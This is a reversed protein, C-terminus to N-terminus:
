EFTMSMEKEGGFEDDDDSWVNRTQDASPLNSPPTKQQELPPRHAPSGSRSRSASPRRISNWSPEVPNPAYHDKPPPRPIDFSKAPRESFSTDFSMSVSEDNHSRATHLPGDDHPTDFSMTIGGDANRGGSHQEYEEWSNFSPQPPNSQNRSLTSSADDSKSPDAADNYSKNRNLAPSAVRSSPASLDLKMPPLTSEIEKIKIGEAALAAVEAQIADVDFLVGGDPDGEKQVDDAPNLGAKSREDYTEWNKKEGKKKNSFLGWRRKQPKKELEKRAEEIENILERQRRAHNEPDPDEIETFEDSEVSWGVERLLRPMAARYSMHGPVFESVDFNEIGPSEVPALGAVRM